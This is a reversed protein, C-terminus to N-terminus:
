LHKRGCAIVVAGNKKRYIRPEEGTLAKIVAALREADAERGGPADAKARAYGAVENKRGYRGFAVVLRCRVGDVEAAIKIRLLKRNRWSEELEASGDIARVVHERGGVEVAREFGKLMLSGRAKGEEVVERVKECVASGAGEARKLMLEIFEAALRRREGEGYVSLWAAYVLGGRFIRVYGDRGGEPRRVSFHKGEKLGMARFRQAEREVNGPNTSAFRVELAGNRMVRVHYKPWGKKL